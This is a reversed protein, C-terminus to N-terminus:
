RWSQLLLLFLCGTSRDMWKVVAPKKLVAAAYRTAYYTDTVVAYWHSRPDRGSSIDLCSAFTWRIFQPLFSVYFIGMKILCM